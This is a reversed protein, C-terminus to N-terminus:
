QIILFEETPITLEGSKSYVIGGVTFTCKYKCKTTGSMPIDVEFYGTLDTVISKNYNSIVGQYIYTSSPKFTITADTVPLNNYLVRGYIACEPLALPPKINPIYNHQIIYSTDTPNLVTDYMLIDFFEYGPYNTPTLADRGFSVLDVAPLPTLVPMIFTTDADIVLTASVGATNGLFMRFRKAIDYDWTIKFEYEEGATPNFVFGGAGGAPYGGGAGFLVEITSDAKHLINVVWDGVWTGSLMAITQEVAPAGSYPVKVKFVLSGINVDTNGVLFVSASGSLRNNLIASGVGFLSFNPSGDAWNAVPLNDPFTAAFTANFPLTM